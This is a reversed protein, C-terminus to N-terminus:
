QILLHRKEFGFKIGNMLNHAYYVLDKFFVKSFKHFIKKAFCMKQKLQPLLLSAPDFFILYFKLINGPLVSSTILFMGNLIKSCTFRIVHFIAM